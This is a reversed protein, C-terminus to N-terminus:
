DRSIEALYGDHQVELIESEQNSHNKGVGPM